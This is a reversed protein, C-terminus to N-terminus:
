APSQIVKYTTLPISKCYCSIGIKHDVEYALTIANVDTTAVAQIMKELYFVRYKGIQIVSMTTGPTGGTPNLWVKLLQNLTFRKRYILVSTKIQGPDLHAKGSKNAHVVHRLSPPESFNSANTFVGQLINPSDSAVEPAFVQDSLEFWNGSGEYSKGYLPVNDVDDAELNGSSNITRNQIKLASKVYIDFGMRRMDLFLLRTGLLTPTTPVDVENVEFKTFYAQPNVDVIYFILDSINTALTSYTNASTVNLQSTQDTDAPFRRYTWKFLLPRIVAMNADLDTVWIKLKSFVMKVFGRAADERLQKRNFISHGIAVSQYKNTASGAIIGGKERNIVVGSVAMRDLVNYGKRGKKFFGSSKSSAAGAGRMKKKLLRGQKRVLFGPSSGGTTKGLKKRPIVKVSRVTRMSADSSRRSAMRKKKQSSSNDSRLYGQLGVALAAATRKIGKGINKRYFKYDAQKLNQGRAYAADHEKATADFEDVAPVSSGAVSDQYKGASWGPGVYNGHYRFRLM